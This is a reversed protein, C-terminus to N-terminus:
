KLHAIRLLIILITRSFIAVSSYFSPVTNATSMEDVIDTLAYM